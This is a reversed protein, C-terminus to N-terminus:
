NLKFQELKTQWDPIKLDGTSLLVALSVISEHSTEPLECDQKGSLLTGNPLSYQGSEFDKANHMYKPRKVYDLYMRDVLFDDAYFKIGSSNFHFNVEEWEFSSKSFPDEEHLEEFDVQYARVTKYCKNKKARVRIKAKYLFDSPLTASFETSSIRSVPTEISLIISRLDDLNIQNLTAGTEQRVAARVFVMQARNLQWDIQPILLGRYQNSDIENLQVKFNYEMEEITM